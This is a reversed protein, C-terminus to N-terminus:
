DWSNAGEDFGDRYPSGVCFRHGSPAEMVVWGEKLAVVAAGTRELRAIELDISDTEIDLHARSPHNVRQIIVQMDGPPTVLKIFGSSADIDEPLAYGLAASWFGAASMLDDTQCDITINGLRSKHM